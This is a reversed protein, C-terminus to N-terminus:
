APSFGCQCARVGFHAAGPPRRRPLRGDPPPPCTYGNGEDGPQAPNAARARAHQRKIPHRRTRQTPVVAGGFRPSGRGGPVSPAPSYGRRRLCLQHAESFNQLARALFSPSPARSRRPTRARRPPSRRRRRALNGCMARRHRADIATRRHRPSAVRVGDFRAWRCVVFKRGVVVRAAAAPLFRARM